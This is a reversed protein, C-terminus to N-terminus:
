EEAHRDQPRAGMATPYRRPIARRRRWSGIALLALIILVDTPPRRAADGIACSSLAFTGPKITPVTTQTFLPTATPTM